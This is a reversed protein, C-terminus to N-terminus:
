KKQGKRYADDLNAEVMKKVQQGEETSDDIYASAFSLALALNYELDSLNSFAALRSGEAGSFQLALGMDELREATGDIITRDAATLVEKKLMSRLANQAAQITQATGATLERDREGVLWDTM